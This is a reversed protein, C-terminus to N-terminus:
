PGGNFSRRFAEAASDPLAVHSGYENVLGFVLEDAGGRHLMCITIKSDIPTHDLTASSVNEGWIRQGCLDYEVRWQDFTLRMRQACAVYYKIIASPAAAM